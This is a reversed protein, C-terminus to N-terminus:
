ESALPSNRSIMIKKTVTLKYLMSIIAYFFSFVLSTSLNMDNAVSNQKNACELLLSSQALPWASSNNGDWSILFSM